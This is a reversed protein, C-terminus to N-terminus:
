KYRRYNTTQQLTMDHSGEVSNKRVKNEEDTRKLDFIYYTVSITAAALASIVYTIFELPINIM